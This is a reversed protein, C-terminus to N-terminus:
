MNKIFKDYNDKFCSYEISQNVYDNEFVEYISNYYQVLKYPCYEKGFAIQSITIDVRYKDGPKTIICKYSGSSDLFRYTNCKKIYESLYLELNNFKCAEKVNEITNISNIIISDTSNMLDM